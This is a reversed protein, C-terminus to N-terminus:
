FNIRLGIKLSIGSFNFKAESAGIIGAENPRSNRIFLVPHTREALIQAQILYLTGDEKLKDSSSGQFNETGEFGKIKAYRGSIEAFFNLHSSLNKLFGFGGSLGFGQASAKGEWQQTSDTTQFLYAYSYRAFYYAVGGKLYLSPILNFALIVSIPTARLNPSILLVSSSSGQLYDVQSENKTQFHEAGIGWSLRKSLPFYVELGLVYGLRVRDVSGKGQVGLIDGYLDALGRIGDNLEGGRITNGGGSIALSFNFGSIQQAEEPKVPRAKQKIQPKTTTKKEEVPPEVVIVLSEHVYGTVTAGQRSTLRVAYWEQKKETADLITGQPVQRIIISSIDPELRINAQEAVVKLRTFSDQGSAWAESTFFFALFFALFAISGRIRFVIKERYV